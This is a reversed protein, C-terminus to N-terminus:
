SLASDTFKAVSTSCEAVLGGPKWGSSVSASSTRVTSLSSSRGLDGMPEEKAPRSPTVAGGSYKPSVGSPSILKGMVDYM